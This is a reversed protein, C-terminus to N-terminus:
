VIEEKTLPVVKRFPRPHYVPSSQEALDVLDVEPLGPPDRGKRVVVMVVSCDRRYAM